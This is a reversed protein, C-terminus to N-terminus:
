QHHCLRCGDHPDAGGDAALAYVQDRMSWSILEMGGMSATRTSIHGAEVQGRRRGVFLTAAGGAVRYAIAAIRNGPPGLVRAGLLEVSPSAAPLPVDLNAYHHLWDRLEACNGSHFDLRTEHAERLAVRQLRVAPDQATFRWVTLAALALMAAAALPWVVRRGEPVCEPHTAQEVSAWLDDPAKVPALGTSLLREVEPM